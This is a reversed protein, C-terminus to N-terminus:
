ADDGGIRELEAKVRKDFQLGGPRAFHYTVESQDQETIWEVVDRLSKRQGWHRRLAGKDEIRWIGARDYRVVAAERTEAHVTRDSM